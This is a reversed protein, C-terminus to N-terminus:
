ELYVYKYPHNDLLTPWYGKVQPSLAYVRNYYYIPIVPCEDVLIADMQQYIEYRQEESGATLAQQFLRDYGAHSWGTRNNGNGTVWIELFVHPDVYDAIWGARALTYNGTDQSDLYVKWEQNLLTLDVGLERKWMQQIAEAIARHNESTNYLLELPAIGRGGPFGAAALLQRAEEPGGELRARPVYGATGPYSVALAPQHAGRTVNRVLSERNIALALARRVRKDNLPPRTTNIRYFYLGLWPEIRLAAANEQRYADIKTVPLENTKHLQGTRFMREETSIDETPYFHIEDLRVTAADWYHPNRAVVIKRNPLWEKLVFPGSGVLNGARTWGTGHRDLPGHRAIVKVPVPTWIYHSAIIKLLYPTPSKLTVQLTREDLAKFGVSSFDALRREKYERAGAVYDFVLYAYDSPFDPALLRRYSQVCDEATLASGDSWRAQARLRFTYVLGDASIEWSEALGPVPSLDKPDETVLGEFLAMIVKHEPVGKTAHPDLDQPETGNGIHWIQATAGPSAGSPATAAKERGCGGVLLSGALLVASIRSRM